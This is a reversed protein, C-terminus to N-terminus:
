SNFPPQNTSLIVFKMRLLSSPELSIQQSVFITINVELLFGREDLSHPNVEPTFSTASTDSVSLDSTPTISGTSENAAHDIQGFGMQAM